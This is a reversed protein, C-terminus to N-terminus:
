WRSVVAIARNVSEVAHARPDPAFSPREWAALLDAVEALPRHERIDNVSWSSIDRGSRESVIARMHRGLEQHLGRLSEEDNAPLYSDAIRRLDSMWRERDSVTFSRLQMNKRAKRRRHAWIHFIVWAMLAVLVAAFGVIFGASTGFTEILDDAPM